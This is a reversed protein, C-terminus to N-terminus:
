SANDPSDAYELMAMILYVFGGSMITCYRDSQQLTMDPSGVVQLGDLLFENNVVTRRDTQDVGAAPVVIAASGLPSEATISLNGNSKGIVVAKQEGTFPSVLRCALIMEDVAVVVGDDSGPLLKKYPYVPLALTQSVLVASVPIPASPSPQIHVVVRDPSFSLYVDTEPPVEIRRAFRATQQLFKGPIWGIFSMGSKNNCPARSVALRYSDTAVIAMTNETIDVLVAAHRPNAADEKQIVVDVQMAMQELHRMQVVCDAGPMQDPLFFELNDQLAAFAFQYATGSTLALRNNSMRWMHIDDGPLPSLVERLADARVAVSGREEIRAPLWCHARTGPTVVSARITDEADGTGLFVYSSLPVVPRPPVFGWLGQIVADLIHKNCQVRMM